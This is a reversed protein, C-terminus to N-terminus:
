THIEPLCPKAGRSCKVLGTLYASEYARPKVCVIRVPHNGRPPQSTSLAPVQPAVMTGPPSGGHDWAQLGPDTCPHTLHASHLPHRLKHPEELEFLVCRGLLLLLKKLDPEKM